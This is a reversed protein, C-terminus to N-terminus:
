QPIKPNFVGDLFDLTRVWATEAAEESYAINNGGRENAFGHGVNPYIYVQHAGSATALSAQFEKVDDVKIAADTEGFHGLVHAKMHTFDDEPDFQGYYMVSATTGLSNLAMQYSWGGGFCWGVSAIKESDVRSLARVFQVAQRLHSFAGEEDARVKGALERAVAPDTTAQGKYMDVALAVYGAEAYRDAMSRIDDNLGWWEHILIVAPAKDGGKPLALYGTTQDAYLVTSTAISSMPMMETVVVDAMPPASQRVVLLAALVGVIALLIYGVSKPFDSAKTM